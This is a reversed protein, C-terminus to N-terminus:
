WSINRGSVWVRGQGKKGKWCIGGKIFISLEKEARALLMIKRSVQNM